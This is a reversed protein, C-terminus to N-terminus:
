DNKLEEAKKMRAVLLEKMMLAEETKGENLFEDAYEKLTEVIDMHDKYTDVM